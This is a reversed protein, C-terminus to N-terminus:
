SLYVQLRLAFPLKPDSVIVEEGSQVLDKLPRELNPATARELQPPAQMYLNGMSASRLSPRSTKIEPRENLIDIFEELSTSGSVTIAGAQSGCVPCDPKRQHEFTYSYVSDKGNYMFHNDLCPNCSTAVKFAEACCVGAIIANTSAIAPIIRKIVGQTLSYTVGEIGFEAARRAATKYAWMVHEPNDTDLKLPQQHHTTGNITVSTDNTASKGDRDYKANGFLKPGEKPWAVVSAWEICHEAVRPTNAITCLPYTVQKGFMDLACEYCSTFTPFIVKAQGMFGETGGDILPKVSEPTDDVMDVLMANIWRRADISDLGAIILTFQRYFAEDKDQIACMHPVVEVNKIRRTIFSAAVEAKSKGIDKERFLFQRNLNSLDITDMDIVHIHKFGTLALNKLIECGLGGAGIVLIKMSELMSIQEPGPSFQETAYPGRTTLASKYM